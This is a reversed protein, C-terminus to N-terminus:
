SDWTNHKLLTHPPFLLCEQSLSLLVLVSLQAHSCFYHPLLASVTPPVPLALTSPHASIALHSLMTCSALLSLCYPSLSLPPYHQSLSHCCYVATSCASQLFLIILNEEQGHEQRTDMNDELVGGISTDHMELLADCWVWLHRLAPVSPKVAVFM